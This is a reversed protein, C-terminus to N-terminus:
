VLQPPCFRDTRAERRELCPEFIAFSPDQGSGLRGTPQDNIGAGGSRERLGSAAQQRRPDNVHFSLELSSIGDGNDVLVLVFQGSADNGVGAFRQTGDDAAVRILDFLPDPICVARSDHM